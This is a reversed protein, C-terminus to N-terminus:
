IVKYNFMECMNTYFILFLMNEITRDEIAKIYEKCDKVFDEETYYKENEIAVQIEKTLKM